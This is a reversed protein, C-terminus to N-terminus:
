FEEEKNYVKPGSDKLIKMINDAGVINEGDKRLVPIGRIGLSKAYDFEQDIDVYKVEINNSEIYKKVPQCQSCWSSSFLEM